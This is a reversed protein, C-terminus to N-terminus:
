ALRSKAWNKFVRFDISTISYLLVKLKRSLSLPSLIILYTLLQLRNFYHHHHSWPKIRSIIIKTLIKTSPKPHLGKMIQSTTKSKGYYNELFRIPGYVLDDINLDKIIQKCIKPNISKHNRINNLMDWRSSGAYSHHLAHLLLYIFEHNPSLLHNHSTQWLEETLGQIQPLLRNFYPFQSFAIAPELHIDFSVPLGGVRKIASFERADKRIPSVSFSLQKLIKYVKTLDEEHILIDADFIFHRPYSRIYKHYIPLGKLIIYKLGIKKAQVQFNALSQLYNDAQKKYISEINFVKNKHSISIAKGIIQKNEVPSDSVRNNDGKTIYDSGGSMKYIIRHAILNNDQKFIIIDDIDYHDSQAIDAVQDDKHILPWMSLMTLGKHM